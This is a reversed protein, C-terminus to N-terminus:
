EWLKTTFNIPEGTVKNIGHGVVKVDCDKPYLVEDNEKFDSELVFQVTGKFDKIHTALDNRVKYNPNYKLVEDLLFVAVMGTDAAFYGIPKQTDTNITACYWDGYNTPRSLYNTLGLAGMNEGWECLEWDSNKEEPIIYCPDTIIIDGDFEKPESDIYKEYFEKSSYMLVEYTKFIDLSEIWEKAGLLDTESVDDYREASGSIYKAMLKFNLLSLEFVTDSDPREFAANIISLFRSKDEDYVYKSSSIESILREKQESLYGEHEKIKQELWKKDM